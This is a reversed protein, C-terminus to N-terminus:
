RERNLIDHDGDYYKEALLQDDRIPSKLWKGIIKELDRINIDSNSNSNPKPLDPQKFM